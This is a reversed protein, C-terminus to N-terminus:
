HSILGQPRTPLSGAGSSSPSPLFLMFFHCIVSLSPPLPRGRASGGSCFQVVGVLRFHRGERSPEQWRFLWPKSNHTATAGSSPELSRWSGSRLCTVVEFPQKRNPEIIEIVRGTDSKKM